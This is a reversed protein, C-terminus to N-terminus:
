ELDTCTPRWPRGPVYQRWEARTLDRGAIECADRLWASGTTARPEAASSGGDSGVDWVIARDGPAITILRGQLPDLEAEEVDGGHGVLSGMPSWIGTQPNVRWLLVAAGDGVTAGWTGDPALLVDRVAGLEPTRHAVLQHVSRGSRDYLIVGGDDWLEAAGSSLARYALVVGPRDPPGLAVQRRTAVDVLTPRDAGNEQWIVAVRADESIDGLLPGHAAVTGAIGTDRRTGTPVDVELMRWPVRGGSPEASVLVDLLRGDPTFSISFPSGGVEDGRLLLVETGRPEVARL